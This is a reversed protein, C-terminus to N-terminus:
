MQRPALASIIKEASVRAERDDVDDFGELHGWHHWVTREWSVHWDAYAIHVQGADPDRPNSIVLGAKLERVQLGSGELMRSVVRLLASKAKLLQEAAPDDSSTSTM